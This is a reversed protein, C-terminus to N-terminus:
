KLDVKRFVRFSDFKHNPLTFLYFFIMLSIPNSLKTNSAVEISNINSIPPQIPNAEVNRASLIPFAIAANAVNGVMMNRSPRVEETICIVLGECNPGQIIATRLPRIGRAIDPAPSPAPTVIAADILFAKL